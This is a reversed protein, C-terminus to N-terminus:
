AAAREREGFSALPTDSCARQLGANADWTLAYDEPAAANGGLPPVTLGFFLQGKSKTSSWLVCERQTEDVLPLLCSVILSGNTMTNTRLHLLGAARQRDEEALGTLAQAICGAIEVVTDELDSSATCAALRAHAQRRELRLACLEVELQGVSIALEERTTEGALLQELLENKRWEPAWERLRAAALQDARAPLEDPQRQGAIQARLRQEDELLYLLSRWATPNVDVPTPAGAPKPKPEGSHARISFLRRAVSQWVLDPTWDAPAVMHPLMAAEVQLGSMRLLEAIPNWKGDANRLEALDYVVIVDLRDADDSAPNAQVQELLMEMARQPQMPDSSSPTYQDRVAFGRAAAYVRCAILRARFSPQM